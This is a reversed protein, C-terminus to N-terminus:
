QLDVSFINSFISSFNAFVGFLVLGFVNPRFRALNKRVTQGM